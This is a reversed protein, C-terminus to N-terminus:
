VVDEDFHAKAIDGVEIEGNSSKSPTIDENNTSINGTSLIDDDEVSQSSAKNDKSKGWIVSYLGVIITLAGFVKGYDLQEQFIFSGIMAVMIMGVPNFATVFFPGMENMIVGSVYYVVGSRVIGNYIYAVLIIDWRISWISHDDREVVLALVLNQLAGFTCILTTLSLGAPYSKLTIAQLIYFCSWSFCGAAIMAAGKVHHDHHPATASVSQQIQHKLTWPFEIIHGRVLTMIMAGGITLTTGMIKSQSHLRRINVEELRFTWALLFTIAPLLNCMAAAFSATTYKMGAYYLNQDIVPEFLALLMIKWFIGLTM